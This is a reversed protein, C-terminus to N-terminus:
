GIVTSCLILLREKQPFSYLSPPKRTLFFGIALYLKRLARSSVGKWEGTTIGSVTSGVTSMGSFFALGAPVGLEGIIAHGAPFLLDAGLGCILGAVIALVYERALGPAAWYNKLTGDKIMKLLTAILSPVFIGIM